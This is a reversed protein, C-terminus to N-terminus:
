PHRVICAVGWHLPTQVADLGVAAPKPYVSYTPTVQRGDTSTGPQAGPDRQSSLSIGPVM